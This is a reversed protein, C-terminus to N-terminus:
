CGEFAFADRRNYIEVTECCQRPYFTGAINDFHLVRFQLTIFHRLGHLGVLVYLYMM